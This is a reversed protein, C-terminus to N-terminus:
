GSRQTIDGFQDAGEADLVTYAEIAGIQSSCLPDASFEESDRLLM